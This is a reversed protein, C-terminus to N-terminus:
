EVGIRMETGILPATFRPRCKLPRHPRLDIPELTRDLLADSSISSRCPENYGNRGSSKLPSAAHLSERATAQAAVDSNHRRSEWVSDAKTVAEVAALMM